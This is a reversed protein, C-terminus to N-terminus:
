IGYVVSKNVKQKQIFFKIRKLMVLQWQMLLINENYTDNFKTEGALTPIGICYWLWWNWICCWKITQKQIHQHAM